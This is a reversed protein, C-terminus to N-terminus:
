TLPPLGGLRDRDLTTRPLDPPAALRSQGLRAEDVIAAPIAELGGILTEYGVRASGVRFATDYTDIRWAVHAPLMAALVQEARQRRAALTTDGRRTPLRLLLRHAAGGPREVIRIDGPREPLPGPATFLEEGSCPETMLRLLRQLGPRTGRERLLRHGHRLLLRRRGEDLQPDLVLGLWAALWDLTERPATRADFLIQVTAIRDEWATFAGEAIALLRDLFDQARADERWCAPLYRSYGFRPFWVRLAQLRPTALGNGQLQLRLQLYRGEAQQLLLDRTGFRHWEGSRGAAEAGRGDRATDSLWPLEPARAVPQPQERWPLTALLSPDDASRSWLRLGTDPPLDGDLMVRHWCCGPLGSDLPPPGGAATEDGPTLVTLRVLHRPRKQAVLPVWTDRSDYRPRGAAAVLGRGGYLRMPHYAPLPVLGLGGAGQKLLFVFAQNGDQAVVFVRATAHAGDGDQAPLVLLAQGRLSFGGHRDAEVAELLVQLPLARPAAVAVPVHLLRSWRGSDGPEDALPNDLVLASGDPLGEVAVPDRAALPRALGFERGTSAPPEAAPAAGEAHFSGAAPPAPSAPAPGTGRLRADLRWLRAAVPAAAPAPGPFPRDLVWLGQPTAALDCPEFAREGAPPAPWAHLRPPGGAELDFEILGAPALSGAVLRQDPTVALGALLPPAPPALPPESGFEAAGPGAAPPPTRTATLREGVPWSVTPAPPWFVETRSDGACQRLIRRGDRDIWYVHGHRDGAAGRRSAVDPPTDLPAAPFRFARQPLMLAQRVDDWGQTALAAASERGAWLRALAVPAAAGGEDDMRLCRGWDDRGLLTLYRTGNADV